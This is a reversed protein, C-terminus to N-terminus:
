LEGETMAIQPDLSASRIAPYIASLIGMALAMSVGLLIGMGAIRINWVSPSLSFVEKLLDIFTGISLAALVAGIIGGTASLITCELIILVFIQTKKLGMARLLGIEKRRERVLSDFRGFLSMGAVLMLSFWFLLLIKQLSRLQNQVSNITRDTFIVKVDIGAEKVAQEFAEEGVGGKLTVMVVSILEYPNEGGWDLNLFPSTNALERCADIDMFITNDMGTGTPRLQNSVFFQEGLVLYNTGVMDKSFNSGLIIENGRGVGADEGIAHPRLVFDTDFDVGIIRIEEGPTCCDLALTQAYFQPTFLEVGDLKEVEKLISAKMYINEPSATFLLTQSEVKSSTPVLVADAGLRERSLSIGDRTVQMIGFVVTFVFITVMTIGVTIAM